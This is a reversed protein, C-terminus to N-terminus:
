RALPTVLLSAFRWWGVLLACAAQAQDALLALAVASAGVAIGGLLFVIRRQWRAWTVRVLRPYRDTRIWRM